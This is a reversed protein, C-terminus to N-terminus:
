QFSFQSRVLSKNVNSGKQSESLQTENNSSSCTPQLEVVSPNAAAEIAEVPQM